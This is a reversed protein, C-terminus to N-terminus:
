PLGKLRRMGWEGVLCGIALLFVWSQHWLPWTWKETVPVKKTPLERVFEDLGDLSVVEGGTQTALEQMLDMNPAVSKFEQRALDSVWGAQVIGLDEGDPGVSVIAARFAGSDTAIYPAEYLGAEAGAEAELPIKKGSPTTIEIKVVANEIPEYQKDLVRVSLTMATPAIEPTPDITCNVRQPVDVVLWRLVQRWLKAQDSEDTTEQRGVPKDERLRWRWLDGITIAATKGKGFSQTVVAPIQQDAARVSALVMAGPKITAVRNVTRFKPLESLRRKEEDWNERLRMWPQLRGERTLDMSFDADDPIDLPRDLYVPLMRGVPTRDYGGNRFSEQGGLMLLGGGRQSVYQDLLDQQDATFFKAEIDDLIVADFSFLDEASKPFGDVLNPEDQQNLGSPGETRFVRVVPQDYEETTEDDEDKFGRFLSNTKEGAGGRFDFKAERKAIRIMGVLFLQDDGEIARRLFKYEWNPRGSVYLIRRKRHDRNICILQENNDFTAEKQDSADDGTAQLKYFAVGPKTPRLEFRFGFTDEDDGGASQSKSAVVEDKEDLLDAKVPGHNPTVSRAAATITIPADEFPTERVAVSDVRLDRLGSPDGVVVPYIPPLDKTALRGDALDTLNGDSVVLVGALSRDKYREAISQMATNLASASGDFELTDYDTVRTLRSDVVYRRVDFDQQLRVHWADPSISDEKLAAVIQDGRSQTAGDDRMSLSRSKDVLIVFQNAGPRARTSSWLPELLCAALLLLGITKLIAPLGFGAKARVYSYIVLAIAMAGIICVPLLWGEDGLVLTALM